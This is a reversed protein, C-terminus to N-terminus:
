SRVLVVLDAVLRGWGRGATGVIKFLRVRLHRIMVQEGEDM